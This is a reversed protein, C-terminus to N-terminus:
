SFTALMPDSNDTRKTGVGLTVLSGPNTFNRRYTTTQEASGGAFNIKCVSAAKQAKKYQIRPEDMLEIIDGGPVEIQAVEKYFQKEHLTPESVTRHLSDLKTQLLEAKKAAANTHRQSYQYLLPGREMSPLTASLSAYTPMSSYQLDLTRLVACVDAKLQLAVNGFVQWQDLQSVTKPKL